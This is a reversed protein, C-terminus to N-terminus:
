LAMGPPAKLSKLNVGPPALRQSAALRMMTCDLSGVGQEEEEDDSESEDDESESEDDEDHWGPSVPVAPKPKEWWYCKGPQKGVLGPPDYDSGSSSSDGREKSGGSPRCEAVRALLSEPLGPIKKPKKTMQDTGATTVAGDGGGDPLAGPTAAAGGDPLAGVGDISSSAGSASAATMAAPAPRSKTKKSKLKEFSEWAAFSKMDTLLYENVM